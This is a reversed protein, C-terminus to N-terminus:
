AGIEGRETPSTLELRLTYRHSNYVSMQSMPGDHTCHRAEASISFLREGNTYSEAGEARRELHRRNANSYCTRVGFATQAREPPRTFYSSFCDRRVESGLLVGM